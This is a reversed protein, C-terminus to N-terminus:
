RWASGGNPATPSHGAARRNTNRSLAVTSVHHTKAKGVTRDKPPNRRTCQGSSSIRRIDRECGPIPGSVSFRVTSRHQSWAFVRWTRRRPKLPVPMDKIEIAVLDTADEAIYPDLAPLQEVLDIAKSMDVVDAIDRPRLLLVDYNCGKV